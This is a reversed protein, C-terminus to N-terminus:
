GQAQHGVSQCDDGCGTQMEVGGDSGKTRGDRRWRQCCWCYWEEYGAAVRTATAMLLSVLSIMRRSVNTEDLPLAAATEPMREGDYM